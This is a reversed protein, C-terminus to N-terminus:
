YKVGHYKLCVVITGKKKLSRVCFSAPVDLEICQDGALECRKYVNDVNKWCVQVVPKNLKGATSVTMKRESHMVPSTIYSRLEFFMVFGDTRLHSYYIYMWDCYIRLNRFSTLDVIRLVFGLFHDFMELPEDGVLSDRDWEIVPIDRHTTHIASRRGSYGDIPVDKLMDYMIPHLYPRHNRLLRIAPDENLGNDRESKYNLNHHSFQQVNKFFFKPKPNANSSKPKEM